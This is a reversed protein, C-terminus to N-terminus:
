TSTDARALTLALPEFGPPSLKDRSAYKNDFCYHAVTALNTITELLISLAAEERIRRRFVRWDKHAVLPNWVIM